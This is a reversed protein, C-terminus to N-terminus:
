EGKLDDICSQGALAARELSRKSLTAVLSDLYFSTEPTQVVYLNGSNNPEFDLHGKQNFTLKGRITPFYDQARGGLVAMVAQLWALQPGLNEERNIPVKSEILQDNWNLKLVRKLREFSTDAFNEM